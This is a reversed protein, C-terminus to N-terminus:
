QGRVFRVFVCKHKHTDANMIPLHEHTNIAWIHVARGYMNVYQICYVFSGITNIDHRQRWAIMLQASRVVTIVSTKKSSLRYSYKRRLFYWYWYLASFFSNDISKSQNFKKSNIIFLNAFFIESNKKKKKRFIIRRSRDFYTIFPVISVLTYFWQSHTIWCDCKLRNILLVIFM